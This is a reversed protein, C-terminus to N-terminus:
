WQLRNHGPQSTVQATLPIPKVREPVSMTSVQQQQQTCTKVPDPEICAQADLKADTCAEAELATCEEERQSQRVTCECCELSLNCDHCARCPMAEKCEALMVDALMEEASRETWLQACM